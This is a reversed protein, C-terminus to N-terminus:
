PLNDFIRFSEEETFAKITTTRVNGQSGIILIVSAYLADNPAESVVIADYQGLTLHYSILKGGAGEVAQRAAAIRAPTDKVNKIGQDTYNILTFYLPM